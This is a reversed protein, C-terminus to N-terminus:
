SRFIKDFLRTFWSRKTADEPNSKARKIARELEAETFFALVPEKYSDELWVSHYWKNANAKPNDNVVRLLRGLRVKEKDIM